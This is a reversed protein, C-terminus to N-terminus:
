TKFIVSATCGKEMNNSINFTWQYKECIDQVIKLGIGFGEYGRPQENLGLGDDIVDIRQESIFLNVSGDISCNIANKLLNCVVASFLLPHAHLSFENQIEYHFNVQNAKITPSFNKVIKDIFTDSISVKSTNSVEDRALLLFIHTLQEMEIVADDIRTLQKTTKDNNARRLVSVGGRIVTMPTRLEHSIYRTFTQERIFAAYIRKRYSNISALMMELEFSLKGNVSLPKSVEHSDYELMEALESFPSSIRKAMKIIFFASGIFLIVGSSLIM